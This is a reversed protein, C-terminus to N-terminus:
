HAYDFREADPRVRMRSPADHMWICTRLSSHRSTRCGGGRNDIYMYRPISHSVMNVLSCLVCVVFLTAVELTRLALAKM